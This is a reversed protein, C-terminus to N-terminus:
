RNFVVSVRVSAAPVSAKHVVATWTGGQNGGAAFHLVCVARGARTHCGQGHPTKLTWRFGAGQMTVSILSSAPATVSVDYADHASASVSFRQTAPARPMQLTKSQSRSATVAAWSGAAFVCLCAICGAAALCARRM